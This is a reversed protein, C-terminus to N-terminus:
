TAGIGTMQKQLDAITTNLSNLTTTQATYAATLKKKQSNYTALSIKKDRYRITNDTLQGAIHERTTLASARSNIAAIMKAQLGNFTTANTLGSSLGAISDLIGSMDPTAGPEGPAGTAGTAGSMGTSGIGTDSPVTSTGPSAAFASRGSLVRMGIVAGAIALAWGWVPLPGIKHGIGEKATEAIDPM